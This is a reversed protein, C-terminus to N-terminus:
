SNPSTPLNEMVLAFIRRSTLMSFHGVGAVKINFAGPDYAADVPVVYADFDSYIAVRDCQPPGTMERNALQALLSSGPTLEQLCPLRAIPSTTGQHPTGLTIIQRVQNGTENQRYARAVLGGTGHGILVITSGPMGIQRIRHGIDDLGDDINTLKTHTPVVFSQWGAAALRRRLLWFAGRHQGLDKLLLAIRMQGVIQKKGTPFPWALLTAFLSSCEHVFARVAVVPAVDPDCSPTRRKIRRRWLYAVSVCFIPFSVLVGTIFLAFTM